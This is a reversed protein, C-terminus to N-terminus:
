LAFPKSKLVTKRGFRLEPCVNQRLLSSIELRRNKTADVRLRKYKSRDYELACGCEYTIPM